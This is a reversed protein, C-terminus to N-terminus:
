LAKLVPNQKFHLELEKVLERDPNIKKSRTLLREYLLLLENQILRHKPFFDETLRGIRYASRKSWIPDKVKFVQYYKSLVQRFREKDFRGLAKLKQEAREAQRYLQEAKSTAMAPLCLLTLLTFLKIKKMPWQSMM